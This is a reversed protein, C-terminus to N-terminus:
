GNKKEMQKVRRAMERKNQRPKYKSPRKKRSYFGSLKPIKVKVNKTTTSRANVYGM